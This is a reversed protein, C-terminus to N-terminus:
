FFKQNSLFNLLGDVERKSHAGVKGKGVLNKGEAGWFNIKKLSFVVKSGVLWM